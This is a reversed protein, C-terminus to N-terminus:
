ASRAPCNMALWLNRVVDKDAWLLTRATPSIFIWEPDPVPVREGSALMLSFPRLPQAHIVERSCGGIVM